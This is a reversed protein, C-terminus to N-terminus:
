RHFAAVSDPPVVPSGGGHIGACSPKELPLLTIDPMNMVFVVARKNGTHRWGKCGVRGKAILLM